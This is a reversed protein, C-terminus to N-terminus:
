LGSIQNNIFQDLTAAETDLSRGKIRLIPDAAYAEQIIAKYRLLSAHLTAYSAPGAILTAIKANIDTQVSSLQAIRNFLESRTWPPTSDAWDIDFDWPILKLHPDGSPQYFFLNKQIGDTHATIRSAALYNVVNQRDLIKFVETEFDTTSPLHTIRTLEGMVELNAPEPKGQFAISLRHIMDVKFDAFSETSWMRKWNIKRNKFFDDDIRELKYYLGLVQDNLYVFVPVQTVTDFGAAKFVELSLYTRLMSSDAITTALRIEEANFPNKHDQFKVNWNKKPERISSAGAAQLTVAYTKGRFTVKAPYPIKELASRLMEGMHDGNMRLNMVEVGHSEPTTRKACSAFSVSALVAILSVRFFSM